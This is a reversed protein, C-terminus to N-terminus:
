LKYRGDGALIHLGLPKRVACHLAQTFWRRAVELAFARAPWQEPMLNGKPILAWGWAEVQVQQADMVILRGASRPDVEPPCDYQTLEDPTEGTALVQRIREIAAPYIVGPDVAYWERDDGRPEPQALGLADFALAPQTERGLLKRIQAKFDM